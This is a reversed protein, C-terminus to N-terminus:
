KTEMLYEIIENSFNTRINIKPAMLQDFSCWRQSVKETAWDVIQNLKELNIVEESDAKRYNLKNPSGIWSPSSKGYEHTLKKRVGRLLKQYDAREDESKTELVARPHEFILSHNQQDDVNGMSHASIYQLKGDEGIAVTLEGYCFGKFQGILLCSAGRLKTLDDVIESVVPVDRGVHRLEGLINAM